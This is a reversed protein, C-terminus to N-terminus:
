EKELLYFSEFFKKRAETVDKNGKVAVEITYIDADVVVARVTSHLDGKEIVFEWGSFGSVDVKSEDIIKGGQQKVNSRAARLGAQEDLTVGGPIASMIQTASIEFIEGGFGMLPACTFTDTKLSSYADIKEFDTKTTPNKCPFTAGFAASSNEYDQWDRSTCACALVVMMLVSATLLYKKGSM